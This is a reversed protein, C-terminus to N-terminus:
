RTFGNEARSSRARTSDCIRRASIRAVCSACARRSAVDEPLRRDGDGDQASGVVGVLEGILPVELEDAVARDKALREELRQRLQRVPCRPLEEVVHSAGPLREHATRM